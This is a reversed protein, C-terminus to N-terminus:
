KKLKSLETSSEKAIESDSHNKIIDEYTDVANQTEGLQQYIQAIYFKSEPVTPADPETKIIQKLMDIANKLELKTPYQGKGRYYLQKIINDEAEAGRVGAVTTVKEVQFSRKEKTMDGVKKWVTNSWKEDTKTPTTKQEESKKDQQAFSLSYLLFCCLILIVSKYKIMYKEGGWIFSNYLKFMKIKIINRNKKKNSLILCGKM